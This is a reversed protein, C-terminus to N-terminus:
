NNGEKIQIFPFPNDNPRADKSLDGEESGTRKHLMLPVM